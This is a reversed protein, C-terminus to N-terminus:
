YCLSPTEKLWYQCGYRCYNQRSKHSSARNCSSNSCTSYRTEFPYGCFVGKNSIVGSNASACGKACYYTPGGTNTLAYKYKDICRQICASGATVRDDCIDPTKCICTSTPAPSPATRAPDCRNQKITASIKYPSTPGAVTERNHDYCKVVGEYFPENDIIYGEWYMNEYEKGNITVPPLIAGKGLLGDIVIRDIMNLKEPVVTNVIEEIGLQKYNNCETIKQDILNKAKMKEDYWKMYIEKKEIGSGYLEDLRKDELQLDASEILTDLWTNSLNIMKNSLTAAELKDLTPLQNTTDGLTFGVATLQNLVSNDDIGNKRLSEIKKDYDANFNKIIENMEDFSPNPAVAMDVGLSHAEVELTYLEDKNTKSHDFKAEFEVTLPGVGIKGGLAAEIEQKNLVSNSIITYTASLQMGFVIQDIFKTGYRDYVGGYDQDRIKNKVDAVGELPVRSDCEYVYATRRTSYEISVRHKTSLTSTLFKGSGSGEVLPGYSVSLEGAILTTEEIDEASSITKSISKTSAFNKREADCATFVKATFPHQHANLKFGDLLNNETIQAYITGGVMIPIVCKGSMLVRTEEEPNYTIKAILPVEVILDSKRGTENFSLAM